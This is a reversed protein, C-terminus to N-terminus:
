VAAASRRDAICHLDHVERSSIAVAHERIWWRERMRAQRPAPDALEGRLSKTINHALM